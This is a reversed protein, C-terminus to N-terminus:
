CWSPLPLLESEQKNDLAVDLHVEHPNEPTCVVQCKVNRISFVSYPVFLYEYEDSIGAARKTILSVNRCRYVPNHVGQPNFYFYFMVYERGGGASILLFQSATDKSFSTAVYMPARYKKTQNACYFEIEEKPITMGRYTIANPPFINLQPADRM